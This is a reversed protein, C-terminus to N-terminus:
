LRLRERLWTGETAGQAGVLKAAQLPQGEEVAKADASAQRVVHPQPFGDLQDRQQQVLAFRYPRRRVEVLEARSGEARLSLSSSLERSSQARRLGFDTLDRRGNRGTILISFPRRS